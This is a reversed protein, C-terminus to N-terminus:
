SSDHEPYSGATAVAIGTLSIAFAAGGTTFCAAAWIINGGLSVLFGKANFDDYLKHVLERDVFNQLGEDASRKWAELRNELLPRVQDVTVSM